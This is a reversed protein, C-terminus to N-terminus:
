FAQPLRQITRMLCAAEAFEHSQKGQRCDQSCLFAGMMGGNAIYVLTLVKLGWRTKFMGEVMLGVCRQM